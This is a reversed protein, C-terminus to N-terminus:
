VHKTSLKFYVCARTYRADSVRAHQSLLMLAQRTCGTQTDTHTNGRRDATQCASFMILQTYHIAGCVLLRFRGTELAEGAVATTLAVGSSYILFLSARSNVEKLQPAMTAKCTTSEIELYDLKGPPWLKGLSSISPSIKKKM